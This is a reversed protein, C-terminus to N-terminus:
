RRRDSRGPAPSSRRTRGPPEARRRPLLRPRRRRRAHRPGQPVAFLRDELRDMAILLLLMAPPTLVATLIM